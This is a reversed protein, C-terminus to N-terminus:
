IRWSRSTVSYEVHTTNRTNQHTELGTRQQGEGASLSVRARARVQSPLAVLLAFLFFSRYTAHLCVSVKRYLQTVLFSSRGSDIQVFRQIVELMNTLSRSFLRMGFRSYGLFPNSISPIALVLHPLYQQKGPLFLRGTYPDPFPWCPRKRHGVVQADARIYPYPM